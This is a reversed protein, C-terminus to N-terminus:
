RLLPGTFPQGGVADRHTKIMELQPNRLADSKSQGAALNNFFAGM